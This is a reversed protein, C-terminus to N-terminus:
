RLARAPSALGRVILGTVVVKALDAVIFPTSGLQAAAHASGTLVMLQALGGAYIVILGALLGSYIRIWSKGDAVVQGAVAAAAPFALLYGGSPGFLRALGPPLVPAFVPLGAAGLLLYLVLSAAGLRPGLLVGVLLVAPGQLTLPVPTGPLPIAAQAAIAVLLVGGLGLLVQRVVSHSLTGTVAQRQNM